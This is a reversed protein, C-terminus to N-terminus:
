LSAAVEITPKYVTVNLSFILNFVGELIINLLYFDKTYFYIAKM